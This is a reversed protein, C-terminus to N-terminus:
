RVSAQPEAAQAAATLAARVPRVPRRTFTVSGPPSRSIKQRSSSWTMMVPGASHSNEPRKSGAVPAHSRSVSPAAQHRDFDQCEAAAQVSVFGLHDPALRAGGTEVGELAASDDDVGARHGGLRNALRPLRDALRAALVRVRADNDGAARRLGL